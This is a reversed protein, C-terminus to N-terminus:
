PPNAGILKGWRAMMRERLEPSSEVVEPFDNKWEFPKCAEILVTSAMFSDSPKRIIPDILSSKTRRVIDIHQDPDCRTTLAWLVESISTVDIDDDVVVIFRSIGAGIVHRTALAVQKAHGAYRQKVSVAIFLSSPSEHTWVGGIDPVGSKRLESELVASRMLTQYFSVSHPPKGQPAGVIIPNDRYYIREVEIFPEQRGKSAYYGTVEAFPGEPRLRGPYCWGAVVIESDAPIPLGTAEEEIVEVPKGRIAGAMNYEPVPVEIGAMAFFLPHHGVSVAVPSPKGRSHYKEYHLRGQKGATAQLALNKSDIIMNRYCGLNVQRTDPDQTIVACGTGMYRGGDLEHWRPTPFRFLEVEDGKMVNELIPGHSVVKPAFAGARTEWEPWKQLLIRRMENASGDEPLGLTFAVRRPSLMFNSLVRFGPPYGPVEDFLLAPADRWSKWYFDTVFGIDEEWSAGKIVKLDGKEEVHRLWDRLDTTM